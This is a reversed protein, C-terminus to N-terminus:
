IVVLRMMLYGITNTKASSRGSINGGCLLDREHAVMRTTSFFKRVSALQGDMAVMNMNGAQYAVVISTKSIPHNSRVSITRMYGM